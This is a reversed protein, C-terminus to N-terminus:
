ECTVLEARMGGPVEQTFTGPPIPPNWTLDKDEYRFRVENGEAPVEVQIRRPLEADCTPGSPPIPPDIGDKDIRPQAMAAPKHEHLAAHYLTFGQQVVKTDLVRIRQQQWPLNFDEPRPVLHITQSAEHASKITIVYYGDGNWDIKASPADHKLVAAEGRMLDVLVNGPIPVTTLRAINCPAAPGVFHRKERTDTFAFKQGDSTLTALQLGFNSIVDMRMNAPRLAYLWIDGRIRGKDGRHDVKASAHIGNGCAGTARMREIAARADPFQSPPPAVVSKCSCGALAPLMVLISRLQM